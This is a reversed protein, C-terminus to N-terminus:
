LTVYDVIGMSGRCWSFKEISVSQTLSDAVNNLTDVKIFFKNEEVMDGVFHIKTARLYKQM